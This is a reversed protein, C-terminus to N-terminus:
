SVKPWELRILRIVVMFLKIRLPNKRKVFRMNGRGCMM